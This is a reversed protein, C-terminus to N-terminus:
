HINKKGIADRMWTTWHLNSWPTDENEKWHTNLENDIYQILASVMNNQGSQYEAIGGKLWDNM